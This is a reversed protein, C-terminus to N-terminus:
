ILQVVLSIKETKNWKKKKQGTYSLNAGNGCFKLSIPQIVACHIIDIPPINTKHALKNSM